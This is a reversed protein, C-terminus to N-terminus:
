DITIQKGILANDVSPETVKKGALYAEGYNKLFDVATAEDTLPVGALTQTSKTGGDFVFEVVSDNGSVSKITIKM